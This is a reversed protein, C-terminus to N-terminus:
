RRWAPRGLATTLLQIAEGALDILPKITSGELLREVPMVPRGRLALVFRIQM